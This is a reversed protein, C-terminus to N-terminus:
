KKRFIGFVVALLCSIINVTTSGILVQMSTADLKIFWKNFIIVALLCACWVCVFRYVKRSFEARLKRFSELDKTQQALHEGYKQELSSLEKNVKKDKVLEKEQNTSLKKILELFENVTM